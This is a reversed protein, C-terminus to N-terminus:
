EFDNVQMDYALNAHPHFSRLFPTFIGKIFWRLSLITAVNQAPFSFSPVPTYRRLMLLTTSWLNGTIGKVSATM